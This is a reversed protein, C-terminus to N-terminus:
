FYLKINSYRFLQVFKSIIDYFFFFFINRFVIYSINKMAAILNNPM